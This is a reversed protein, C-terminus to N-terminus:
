EHQAHGAHSSAEGSIALLTVCSTSTMVSDYGDYPCPFFLMLM